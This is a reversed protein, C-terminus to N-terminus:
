VAVAPGPEALGSVSGSESSSRRRRVRKEDRVVFMTSLMVCTIPNLATLLTGEFSFWIAIVFALQKSPAKDFLCTLYFVYFFIGELLGYEVTTKAIPWWFTNGGAEIQGAGAGGYVGHPDILAIRIRDLPAIFRSNASSGTEQFEGFRHAVLDFWHLELAVFLAFFATALMIAFVRTNMRSFIIPLSVLLLVLGTGAFTALLTAGFFVARQVRQFYLLEIILAFTIFQSLISVELFAIGSPKMLNLGWEIPQIYNFEPILLSPPLLKDLNPWYQWGISIQIAHQAWVIGAFVLMVTCFFDLCRRYTARTTDFAVLFPLYLAYYLAMSGLSYKPAFLVNSLTSLTVLALYLIAREPRFVPRAFLVGVGLAVYAVPLIIPIIFAKSPVYGIKQFVTLCIMLVAFVGFVINQQTTTVPDLAGADEGSRSSRSGRASGSSGSGSGSRGSGGSRRRRTPSGSPDLALPGDMRSSSDSLEAM